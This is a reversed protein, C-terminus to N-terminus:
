SNYNNTKLLLTCNNGALFPGTFRSYVVQGAGFPLCTINAFVQEVFNSKWASLLRSLHQCLHKDLLNNIIIFNMSDDKIEANQTLM